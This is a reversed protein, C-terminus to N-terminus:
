LDIKSDLYCDLFEKTRLLVLFVVRPYGTM